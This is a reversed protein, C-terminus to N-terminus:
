RRDPPRRASTEAVQARDNRCHIEADRGVGLRLVRCTEIRDVGDKKFFAREVARTYTHDTDDNDITAILITFRESPTPQTAFPRHYKITERLDRAADAGSPAVQDKGM